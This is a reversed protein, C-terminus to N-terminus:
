NILNESLVAEKPISMSVDKDSVNRNYFQAPLNRNIAALIKMAKTENKM